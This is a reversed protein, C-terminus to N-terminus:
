KRRRLFLGGLGLLAITMPEPIVTLVLAQANAAVDAVTGYPPGASHVPAGLLDDITFTDGIAAGVPITVKFAYLPEGAAIAPSGAAIVGSIRDILVYRGSTASNVLIGSVNVSDFGANVTGLAVAPAYGASSTTTQGLNIGINSAIAVTDVVEINVVEGAVVNTTGGGQVQIIPVSSANATVTLGLVLLLVFVKKM